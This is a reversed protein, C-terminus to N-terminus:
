AVSNQRAKALALKASAVQTRASEERSQAVQACMGVIRANQQDVFQKAREISLGPLHHLFVQKIDPTFEARRHQEDGVVDVLRDKKGVTYEDYSAGSAHYRSKGDIQWPRPQGLHRGTRCEDFELALAHPANSGLPRFAKSCWFESIPRTM